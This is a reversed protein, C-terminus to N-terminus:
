DDESGQEDVDVGQLRKKIRVGGEKAKSIVKSFSTHSLGKLKGGIGKSKGKGFKLTEAGCERVRKEFLSNHLAERFQADIRQDVFTQLMQTNKFYSLFKKIGKSKPAKVFADMRFEESENSALYQHYHGITEVFFRVFAEVIVDSGAFQSSSDIAMTLASRLKPPLIDDEDGVQKVFKGKDFDVILVDAEVMDMELMGLSSSLVGMIYPSPACCFDMLSNPLVPIYVHQWSFPYLLAAAAHVCESLTSLKSASFIIHREMLMAAFLSLVRAVGLKTFLTEFKVHELRDSDLPRRLVLEEMEDTGSGFTLAKVKVARGPSPFPNAIVAQLFTFVASASHSRRQEVADLIKSYLEFCGHPSIICYVEPLRPGSGSPLLRRCYGFRKEGEIDTLVFSYTESKYSTVPKWQDLDPFCFAPVLELTQQEERSMHSAIAPPFRYTVVAKFKSSNGDPELSVVRVYQFLQGKDEDGDSVGSNSRARKLSMSVHRLKPIVSLKPLLEDDPDEECMEEEVEEVETEKKGGGFKRKFAGFAANVRRRLSPSPKLSVGDDIDSSDSGGRSDASASIKKEGKTKAGFFGSSKELLSHKKRRGDGSDAPSSAARSLVDASETKKVPKHQKRVSPVRGSFTTSRTPTNPKASPDTMVLSDSVSQSLQDNNLHGQSSYKVHQKMLGNQGQVMVHNKMEPMSLKGPEQALPLLSLKLALNHVKQSSDQNRPPPVPRELPYLSGSTPSDGLM